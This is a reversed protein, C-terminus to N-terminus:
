KFPDYGEKVAVSLAVNSPCEAGHETCGSIVTLQHFRSPTMPTWRRYEIVTVNPGSRPVFTYSSRPPYIIWSAGHQEDFFICENTTRRAIQLDTPAPRYETPPLSPAASADSPQPKRLLEPGLILPEDGDPPSTGGEAGIM